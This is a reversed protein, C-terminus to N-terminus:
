RTGPPNFDLTATVFSGSFDGPLPNVPNSDYVARLASNDYSSNGGPESVFINKLSGDRNITFTM